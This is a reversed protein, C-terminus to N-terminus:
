ADRRIDGAVSINDPNGGFDLTLGGLPKRFVRYFVSLWVRPHRGVKIFPLVGTHRWFKVTCTTVQSMDAVERDTLLRDQLRRDAKRREDM